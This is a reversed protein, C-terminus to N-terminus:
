VDLLNGLIGVQYECHITYTGGPHARRIPWLDLWNCLNDLLWRSPSWQINDQYSRDTAMPAHSKTGQAASHCQKLYVEPLKKFIHLAAFSQRAILVNMNVNLSSGMPNTVMCAKPKIHKMASKYVLAKWRLNELILKGGPLLALTICTSLVPQWTPAM